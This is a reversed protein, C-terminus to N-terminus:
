WAGGDMPTKWALTISHPAMAKELRCTLPYWFALPSTSVPEGGADSLTHGQQSRSKVSRAALFILTYIERVIYVM